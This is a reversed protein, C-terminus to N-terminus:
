RPPGALRANPVAPHGSRVTNTATSLLFGPPTGPDIGYHLDFVKSKQSAAKAARSGAKAARVVKSGARAQSSSNSDPSRRAAARSVVVVKDVKARSSVKNVAKAM